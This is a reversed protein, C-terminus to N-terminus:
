NSHNKKFEYIILIFIWILLFVDALNFIPYPWILPLKWINIFDRVWGFTIRDIINWLAWSIILATPILPIQKKKFFYLLVWIVLIAVVYILLYSMPISWAIWTNFAPEILFTKMLYEQNYFIYKSLLDICLFTIIWILLKTNQHMM